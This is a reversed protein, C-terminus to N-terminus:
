NDGNKHYHDEIFDQLEHMLKKQNGQYAIRLGIEANDEDVGEIVNQLKYEQIVIAFQLMLDCPVMFKRWRM